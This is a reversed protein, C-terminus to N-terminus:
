KWGQSLSVSRYGDVQFIVTGDSGTSQFDFKMCPGEAGRFFFRLKLREGPNPLRGLRLCAISQPVDVRKEFMWFTYTGCAFICADLVAAPIRVGAAGRPSLLVEIGEAILEGYGGDHQCFYRQLRRFPPGHYVPAFDVYEAPFLGMPPEVVPWPDIPHPEDAFEIEASAILRDKQLTRGKGDLLDNTLRCAFYGAQKQASVRAERTQNEPIVLGNVFGVKRIATSERGALAEAAEVLAELSIVAPLFPKGFLRHHWLFPDREPRFEVKAQLSEQPVHSVLSDLLPSRRAPQQDPPISPPSAASTPGLDGAGALEALRAAVKGNPECIALQSCPLGREFEDVLHAAGEEPSMFRTGIRELALRSEPRTAMGVGEFASWHVGLALCGPRDRRIREMLSCLLNNGMAYDAQGLGGVLGSVSGYGIFCELPDNRTAALLGLAGDAKVNLTAVVSDWKKRAFQCASEVGAGHIIGTIPGDQSRIRDLTFTLQGFDAVDCHHYTAAVGAAKMNRVTQDIELAREVKGWAAAPVQGTARAENLM